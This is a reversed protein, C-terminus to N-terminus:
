SGVNIKFHPRFLRNVLCLWLAAPLALLKLYRATTSRTVSLTVYVRNDKIKM